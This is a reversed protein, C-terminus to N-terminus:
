RSLHQLPLVSLESFHQSPKLFFQQCTYFACMSKTRRRQNACCLKVMAADREEHIKVVTWLVQQIRYAMLERM